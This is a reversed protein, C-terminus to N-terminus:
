YGYCPISDNSLETVAAQRGRKLTQFQPNGQLTLSSGQRFSRVSETRSTLVFAWPQISLERISGPLGWPIKLCAVPFYLVM